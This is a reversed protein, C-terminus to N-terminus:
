HVCGPRPSLTWQQDILDARQWSGSRIVPTVCGFGACLAYHGPQLQIYYIGQFDSGGIAVENLKVPDDYIPFQGTVVGADGPGLIQGYLGQGTDPFPEGCFSDPSDDCGALLM